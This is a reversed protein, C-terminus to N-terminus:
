AVVIMRSGDTKGWIGGERDGERGTTEAGM